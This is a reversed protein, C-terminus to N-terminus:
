PGAFSNLLRIGGPVKGDLAILHEPESLCWAFSGWALNPVARKFAGSNRDEFATVFTIQSTRFGATTILDLLAARRAETIEGATAVAEAFVILPDRPA